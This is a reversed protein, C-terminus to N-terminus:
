SLYIFLKTFLIDCMCYYCSVCMDVSYLLLQNTPCSPLFSPLIPEGEFSSLCAFMCAPLWVFYHVYSRVSTTLLLHVAKVSILKFKLCLMSMSERACVCVCVFTFTKCLYVHWYIRCHSFSERMYSQIYTHIYTHICAHILSNHCSLM